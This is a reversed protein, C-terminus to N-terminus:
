GLSPYRTAVFTVDRVVAELTGGHPAFDPGGGGTAPAVTRAAYLKEFDLDDAPSASRRLAEPSTPRERERERDARRFFSFLTSRAPPVKAAKAKRGAPRPDTSSAERTIM